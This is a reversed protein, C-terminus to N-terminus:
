SARGRDLEAGARGIVGRRQGEVDAGGHAGAGGQDEDVLPVALVGQAGDGLLLTVWMCRTGIM